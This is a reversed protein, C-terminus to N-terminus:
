CGFIAKGIKSLSATTYCCVEKATRFNKVKFTLRGTTTLGAIPTIYRDLMSQEASLGADAAWKRLAAYTTAMLRIKHVMRVWSELPQLSLVSCLLKAFPPIAAVLGDLERSTDGLHCCLVLPKAAIQLQMNQRLTRGWIKEEKSPQSGWRASLTMPDWFDVLHYRIEDFLKLM